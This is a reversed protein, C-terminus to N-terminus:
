RQYLEKKIRDFEVRESPHLQKIELGTAKAKEFAKLAQAPQQALHLARALHFYRTASPTDANATKLDAIAAGSKGLALHVIARTDLLEPRPGMVDLARNILKEAKGAESPTQALLWALNNLAMVNNPEEQLIARYCSKADDFRGCLDHVDALQLRLVTSKPNKELAEQLFTQVRAIDKETPQGARLLGVVAGGFAEPPLGQIQQWRDLAESVRNQRALFGALALLREPRVPKKEAYVKLLQLGQDPHGTLELWRAKLETSGYADDQGARSKELEILKDVWQGAEKFKHRLLLSQALHAVYTPKNSGAALTRLLDRARQWARDGEAESLEALLYRDEIDLPSRSELEELLDIAQKRLVGIGPSALVRARTRLSEKREHPEPVRVEVARGSRDDLKM